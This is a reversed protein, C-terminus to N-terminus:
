TTIKKQLLYNTPQHSIKMGFTLDRLITVPDLLNVRSKDDSSHACSLQPLKVALSTLHTPMNVLYLHTHTLTHTYTYSPRAHPTAPQLCKEHPLRGSVKCNMRPRRTFWVLRLSSHHDLLLLPLILCLM